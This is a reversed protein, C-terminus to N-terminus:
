DIRVHLDFLVVTGAPNIEDISIIKYESGDVTFHDALNVDGEADVLLQKDGVQISEGRITTEGRTTKSSFNFIAGKRTTDTPTIPTTRTAANRTGFANATRTVDQGFETLLELSLAAFEDYNFTM